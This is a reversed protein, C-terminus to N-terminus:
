PNEYGLMKYIDSGLPMRYDYSSLITNDSVNILRSTINIYTSAESYIGVVIAQANHEVSINKLERSLLFEGGSKRIFVSNRLKMEVVKYGRQNLRSAICESVTRGFTSSKDLNDINVFSGILIPQNPALPLETRDILMDAAKYSHKIINQDLNWYAKFGMCSSLGLFLICILIVGFKGLAKKSEFIKSSNEFFM